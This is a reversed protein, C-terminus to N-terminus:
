PSVYYAKGFQGPQGLAKGLKYFKKIKRKRNKPDIWMEDKYKDSHWFM